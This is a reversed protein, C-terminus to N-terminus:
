IDSATSLKLDRNQYAEPAQVVSSRKPLNPKISKEEQIERRQAQSLEEIEKKGYPTLILSTNPQGYNKLPFILDPKKADSRKDVSLHKM